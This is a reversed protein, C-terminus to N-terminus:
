TGQYDTHLGVTQRFGGPGNCGGDIESGSIGHIFSDSTEGPCAANVEKKSQSLHEVAALAEPYGIFQSPSPLTPGLLLRLDMGFAVSDGLALYTYNKDNGAFSQRCFFALLLPAVMAIRRSQPNRSTFM